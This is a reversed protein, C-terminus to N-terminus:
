EILYAPSIYIKDFTNVVPIDVRYEMHNQNFVILIIEDDDNSDHCGAGIKYSISMSTVGGLRFDGPNDNDVIFDIVMKKRRSDGDCISDTGEFEIVANKDPTLGLILSASEIYRPVYLVFRNAYGGYDDFSKTITTDLTAPKEVPFRKYLSTYEYRYFSRFDVDALRTSYAALASTLGGTEVILAAPHRRFKYVVKIRNYTKGGYILPYDRFVPFTPATEPYMTDILVQRRTVHVDGRNHLLFLSVSEINEAPTDVTIGHLTYLLADVDPLAITYEGSLDPLDIRTSSREIGDISGYIFMSRQPSFRAASAPIVPSLIDRIISIKEDRPRGALTCTPAIACAPAAM